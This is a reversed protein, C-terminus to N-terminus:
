IQTASPGMVASELDLQVQVPLEVRMWDPDELYWHHGLLTLLVAGAVPFRNVLESITPVPTWPILALVEYACLFAVVKRGHRGFPPRRIAATAVRM